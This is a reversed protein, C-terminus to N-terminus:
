TALQIMQEQVLKKVRMPGFCHSFGQRSQMVDSRRHSPGNRVSRRTWQCRTTFTSGTVEQHCDLKTNFDTLIWTWLIQHLKITSTLLFQILMPIYTAKRWMKLRRKPDVNHQFWNFNMNMLDSTTKCQNYTFVPYVNPQLYSQTVNTMRAPILM